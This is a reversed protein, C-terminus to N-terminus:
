KEISAMPSSSPYARRLLDWADAVALPGSWLFGQGIDCGSAILFEAQSEEEVGEAITRLGLSHALNLIPGLLKSGTTATGDIPSVFSKDVKLIDVPLDQLYSLSSYGTGFDDIAISMGEASLRALMAAVEAPDRLLVSETIELVVRDAYVGASAIARKAHEVLGDDRIQRSSVNFAMTFDSGPALLRTWAGLQRTAEYLVFRGIDVILGSEEAIGIFMDPPILGMAPHQWRLLAEFGALKGTALEFCPQYELFLEGRELAGALETQLEFRELAQDRMWAEFLREADKGDAKASYMAIDANRVLDAATNCEPGSIAVGISATVHRDTSTSVSALSINTRMREGTIIADETDLLDEMLVVFEDGGFRAVTDGTRAAAALQDAVKCLLEDGAQHGLNDNVDKFGDLDVLLVAVRTGLRRARDLAHEVRDNFLARNSLGTLQDHFAQHRLEVELLRQSTIDRTNVVYGQVDADGTLNAVNSEAYRLRGSADNLEWIVQEVRSSAPRRIADVLPAFLAGFSALNRGVLDERRWGYSNRVGQSFSTIMLDARVVMVIDSSREFLADFHRERGILELTRARVRGELSEILAHNEAVVVLAYVLALMAVAFVIWVGTRDIRGGSTILHNTSAITLGVGAVLVPITALLWFRRVLARRGGERALVAASQRDGAGEPTRPAQREIALHRDFALAGAGVMLFGAFWGTNTPSISGGDQVTTLYWFYSDAVALLVMGACLWGLNGLARERNRSLVFLLATLAVADSIPYALSVLQEELPPHSIAIAPAILVTWVSALVGSAILSGELIARAWSLLVSPTDVFGLIGLVILTPSLLFFLDCISPVPPTEGFGVLLVTFIVQGIGWSLTGLGILSWSRRTRGSHRRAVVACVFAAVFPTVAQGINDFGVWSSAGGPHVTIGACFLVSAVAGCVVYLRLSRAGIEQDM